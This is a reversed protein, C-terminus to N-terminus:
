ADGEAPADNTRSTAATYGDRRANYDGVSDRYGNCPMLAGFGDECIVGIPTDNSKFLLTVGREAGIARALDYLLKTDLTVVFAPEEDTFSPIVDAVPPLDGSCPQSEAAEDAKAMQYDCLHITPDGNRTLTISSGGRRILSTPIVVPDGDVRGRAQRIAIMRGDTATLFVTDAERGNRVEVGDLAYRCRKASTAHCINSPFEKILLSLADNGTATRTMQKRREIGTWDDEAQPMLQVPSPKSCAALAQQLSELHTECTANAEIHKAVQMYRQAQRANFECNKKVWPLWGGHGIDAKAKLLLEGARAAHELFSRGALVAEAHERNIDVALPTLQRIM